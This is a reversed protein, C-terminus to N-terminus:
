NPSATQAGDAVTFFLTGPATGPPITYKPSQTVEAGNEGELQTM